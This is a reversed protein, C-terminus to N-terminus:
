SANKTRMNNRTGKVSFATGHKRMHSRLGDRKHYSVGCINCSYPKVGKHENEHGELKIKFTFSKDCFSCKFKPEEHNSAIHRKLWATTSCRKDCYKCNYREDTSHHLNKHRGLREKTIFTIGCVECTANENVNEHVLRTHLRWGEKSLFQKECKDCPFYLAKNTSNSGDVTAGQERLHIRNHKSLMREDKFSKGCQSCIPREGNAKPSKSVTTNQAERKKSINASRQTNRLEPLQMVEPYKEKQLETRVCKKYHNVLITAPFYEQCIPCTCNHNERHEEDKKTHQVLNDAFDFQEHCTPCNFLGWFHVFKKHLTASSESDFNKKCEHCHMQSKTSEDTPQREIDSGKNINEEDQQEESCWQEYNVSSDENIEKKVVNKNLVLSLCAQRHEQFADSEGSWTVKKNCWPCKKSLSNKSLDKIFPLVIPKLETEDLMSVSDAVSIDEMAPYSIGNSGLSDTEGDEKQELKPSMLINETNVSPASSEKMMVTVNTLMKSVNLKKCESCQDDGCNKVFRHCSKSVKRPIPTQALLCENQQEEDLAFPFGVCPRGQSFQEKCVQVLHDVTPNKGTLITQNWLRLKYVGSKTNLLLACAIYPEGDIFIDFDSKMVMLYDGLVVSTLSLQALSGRVEELDLEQTMKDRGGDAKPYHSFISCFFLIYILQIKKM